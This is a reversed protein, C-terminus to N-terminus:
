ANTGEGDNRSIGQHKCYERIAEHYELLDFCLIDYLLLLMRNIHRVIVKERLVCIYVSLWWFIETEIEYIFLM